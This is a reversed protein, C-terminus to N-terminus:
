SMVYQGWKQMKHNAFMKLALAQIVYQTMTVSIEQNENIMVNLFTRKRVILKKLFSRIQLYTIVMWSSVNSDMM